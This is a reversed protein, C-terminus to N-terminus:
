GTGSGDIPCGYAQQAQAGADCAWQFAQPLFALVLEVRNKPEPSIYAPDNMNDPENWIDWALIREDNRFAGVV